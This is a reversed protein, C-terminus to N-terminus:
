ELGRELTREMSFERNYWLELLNLMYQIREIVPSNSLQNELLVLDTVYTPYLCGMWWSLKGGGSISYFM